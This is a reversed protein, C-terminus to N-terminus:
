WCYEVGIGAMATDARGTNGVPTGAIPFIRWRTPENAHKDHLYLFLETSGWGLLATGVVDTLWHADHGIRGFGDLAALSYVPGAVYWVNDFYESVGAAFGFVPAVEGSVFSAGGRFFATAATRSRGFGDSRQRSAL